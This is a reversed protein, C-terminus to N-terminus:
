SPTSESNLYSGTKNIKQSNSILEETDNEDKIVGSIRRATKMKEKQSKKIYYQVIDLKVFVLFSLSCIVLIIAAIIFYVLAGYYNNHPFVLLTIARLVNLIIGSLGNGFFNCGYVQIAFSRCYWLHQEACYWWLIRISLLL